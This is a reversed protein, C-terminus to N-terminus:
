DQVYIEVYLENVSDYEFVRSNPPLVSIDDTYIGSNTETDVVFYKAM